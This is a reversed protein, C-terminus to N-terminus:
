IHYSTQNETYIYIICVNWHRAMDPFQVKDYCVNFKASLLFKM